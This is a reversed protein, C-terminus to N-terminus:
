SRQAITAFGEASPGAAHSDADRLALRLAQEPLLALAWAHGCSRCRCDARQDWPELDLRTSVGTSLCTRCALGADVMCDPEDGRFVATQPAETTSTPATM